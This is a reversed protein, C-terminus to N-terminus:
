IGALQTKLKIFTNIIKRTALAQLGYPKKLQKQLYPDIVDVPCFTFARKEGPDTVTRLYDFGFTNTSENDFGINHAKSLVPYVVKMGHRAVTVQMQIDWTSIIGAIQKKLLRHLDLGQENLTSKINPSTALLNELGEKDWIVKKVRDSWSAWGYSCFRGHIVTDFSYHKKRLPFAFGSICFISQEGKYFELADLMYRIYNPTVVLDDEVVIFRDYNERLYNIGAFFNPGTSVNRERYHKYVNKFGTLSDIYERTALVGPLDKEGKHGDCFFIIDMAACEPNKLLAEMSAKLKSARKYCFVGIITKESM